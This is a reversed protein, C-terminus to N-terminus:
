ATLAATVPDDLTLSTFDIHSASSLRYFSEFMESSSWGGRSCVANVDAGALVAMTSGLARTNPRRKSPP